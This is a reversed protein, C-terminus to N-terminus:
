ARVKSHILLVFSLSRSPFTTSTPLTHTNGEITQVVFPQHFEDLVPYRVLAYHPEDSLPQPCAHQFLSPPLATFFSRRLAPTGRRQHGIDKQVVHEIEPHVLPSLCFRSAVHDDDSKCIIEDNSKLVPRVGLPKVLIQLLSEGLELQFQMGLFRAQDLKAVKCGVIPFSAPLPLRLCEIKKAERVDTALLSAVPHERHIPPRYALPVSCLQLLDFRSQSSSHVLRHRLYTFPQLSHNFPMIPVVTHRRVRLRQRRESKMYCSVPKPRQPSPALLRPKRPLPHVSQDVSPQWRRPDMVRIGQPSKADDGLAPAPHTLLARGSRHLPHNTITM